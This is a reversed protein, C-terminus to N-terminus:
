PRKWANFRNMESMEQDDDEDSALELLQEAYGDEDMDFFAVARREGVSLAAWSAGRELAGYYLAEAHEPDLDAAM